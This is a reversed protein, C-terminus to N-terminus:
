KFGLIDYKVMDEHSAGALEAALYFGFVRGKLKEPWLGSNDVVVLFKELLADLEGFLIERYEEIKM